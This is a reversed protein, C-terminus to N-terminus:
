GPRNPLIGRAPEVPHPGNESGTDWYPTRSWSCHRAHGHLLGALDDIHRRSGGVDSQSVALIVPLDGQGLRALDAALRVLDMKEGVNTGQRNRDPTADSRGTATSLM